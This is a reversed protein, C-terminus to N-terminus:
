PSGGEGTAYLRVEHFRPSYSKLGGRDSLAGRWVAFAVPITAVDTLNVGEARLPSGLAVRWRGGGWRANGRVPHDALRTVSGIGTASVAFPEEDGARWHWAAVPQEPSGMTDIEAARANAPFLVACGDAFANIDNISRHPEAEDWDLRLVLSDDNRLARVRVERVEGRPRERWAVQVYASPQRDLPTPALPIAVESAGEWSALDPNLLEDFSLPHHGADLVQTTSVSTM